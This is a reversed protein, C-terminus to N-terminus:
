EAEVVKRRFLEGRELRAEILELAARQRWSAAVTLSWGHAAIRVPLFPGFTRPVAVEVAAAPWRSLV